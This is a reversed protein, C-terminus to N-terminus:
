QTKNKRMIRLARIFEKAKEIEADTLPEGDIESITNPAYNSKVEALMMNNNKDKFIIDSDHTTSAAKLTLLYELELGFIEAYKALTKESPTNIAKEYFGVSQQSVGLAKATEAQTKKLRKRETRLVEALYPAIKNRVVENSM